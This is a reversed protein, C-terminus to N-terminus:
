LMPWLAEWKTMAYWYTFNGSSCYYWTSQYCCQHYGAMPPGGFCFGGAQRPQLAGGGLLSPMRKAIRRGAALEAYDM